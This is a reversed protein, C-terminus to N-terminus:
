AFEVITVIGNESLYPAASDDTPRDHCRGTFTGTKLNIELVKRWPHRNRGNGPCRVFAGVKLKELNAEYKRLKKENFRLMVQDRTTYVAETEWERAGPKTSPVTCLCVNDVDAQRRGRRLCDKEMSKQIITYNHNPYIKNTPVHLLDHGFGPVPGLIFEPMADNRAYFDEVSMWPNEIKMM